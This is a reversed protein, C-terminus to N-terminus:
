LTTGYVHGYLKIKVTSANGTSSSFRASIRTNAPQQAIQLPVASERSFNSTRGCDVSGIKVESLAAGAFIDIVGYLTESIDWISVWHLDFAKTITNAPIIEVINGTANWAAANATLEVPNAKDPYLFSAGHIHYYGTRLFSMMSADGSNYPVGVFDTKNGVVDRIQNNDTSNQSPVDHFGDITDIKTDIGSIDDVIGRSGGPDNGIKGM